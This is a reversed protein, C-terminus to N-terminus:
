IFACNFTKIKALTNIQTNAVVRERHRIPIEEIPFSGVWRRRIGEL